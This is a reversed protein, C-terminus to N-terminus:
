PNDLIQWESFVLNVIADVQSRNFFWLPFGFHFSRAAVRVGIKVEPVIDSYKDVWIAITENDIFSLSSRARMRYMPHFCPQSEVLRYEMYYSPDYIECYIFGRVQPDFFRGVKAVEEWLELREPLGPYQQTIPDNDARVAYRMGDRDLNRNYNAPIEEPDNRFSGWIKDLMTVCYDRHGMCNVASTDEAKTAMDFKFTAPWLPIASPKFIAALGGGQESRGLTWLHGGKALFLSLYNVVLDGVEGVDGEPTFQIVKRLADQSSSYTWIINKYKGVLKIKPPNANNTYYCDFVDRDSKFDQARRCIDVWFADHNTESPTEYLLSQPDRSYFDDVWLLNLEMSFPIVEIQVQGLTKRGGDDVVEVYFTHTGSYLKREPAEKIDSRCESDWDDPNNMDRVDWGYRYCVIKGGYESADAWWRFNLPVGPPLEKKVPNMKTGVFRFSGLYSESITLLPGTKVSVVFRRINTNLTFVSSIAGAEDRAQVAFFHLKSVTLIEDDGIVTTRGSDGEARYPIWPSWLHEYRWPNTNLERVTNFTDSYVGDTDLNIGWMHRIDRPEQTNTPDDIPDSGEWGFTIVTSYSQTGSGQLGPENILVTPALTWATFSRFTADSRQGQYDVARIFFTHTKDYRTYNTNPKFPRPSEDATVRFVSDHVTTRSWKDIGTTDQPNFGTPNGEAIVFEYFSIEGDPDWGSWYFHVQYGTTDGEVPGSSLWVEPKKNTDPFGSFDESCGIFAVISCLVIM